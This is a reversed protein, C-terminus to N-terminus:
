NGAQNVTANLQRWLMCYPWGYLFQPVYDPMLANYILRDDTLPITRRNWVRPTVQSPHYIYTGLATATTFSRFEACCLGNIHKTDGSVDVCYPRPTPVKKLIHLVSSIQRNRFWKTSTATHTFIINFHIYFIPNSVTPQICISSKRAKKKKFATMFRPIVTFLKLIKRIFQCVTLKGLLKM